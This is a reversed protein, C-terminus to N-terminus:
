YPRLKVYENFYAGAPPTGVLTRYGSPQLAPARAGSSGCHAVVMPATRRGAPRVADAVAAARARAPASGRALRLMPSLLARTGPCLAARRGAAAGARRGAAAAVRRGAATAVRRTLALRTAARTPSLLSRAGTSPGTIRRLHRRTCQPASFFSQKAFPWRWRFMPCCRRVPPALGGRSCVQYGVASDSPTLDSDRPAPASAPPGGARAEPCGM